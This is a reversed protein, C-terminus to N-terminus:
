TDFTLFSAPIARAMVSNLWCELILVVVNEPELINELIYAKIDSKYGQVRNRVFLFFIYVTSIDVKHLICICETM